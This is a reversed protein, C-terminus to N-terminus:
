LSRSAKDQVTPTNDFVVEIRILSKVQQGNLEGPRFHVQLFTDRAADELAKPLSPGDIRVRRVVGAEDIFLALTTAYRGPETGQEPFPVMVLGAPQPASTLLPRPLYTDGDDAAAPAPPQQQADPSPKHEPPPPAQPSEAPAQALDTSPTALALSTAAETSPLSAPEPRSIPSAAPLTRQILRTQFTHRTTANPSTKAQPVTAPELLTLAAAHMVVVSASIARLPRSLTTM